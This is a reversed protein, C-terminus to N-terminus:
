MEARQLVCVKRTSLAIKVYHKYMLVFRGQITAM